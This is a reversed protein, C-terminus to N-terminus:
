VAPQRCHREDGWQTKRVQLLEQAARTQWSGDASRITRVCKSIYENPKSMMHFTKQDIVIDPRLINLLTFLDDDGTQLPTATLM